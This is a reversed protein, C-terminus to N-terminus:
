KTNEEIAKNFVDELAYVCEEIAYQKAYEIYDKSCQNKEELNNYWYTIKEALSTEDGAKFLNKQSLAFQNTASLKSDSIVPVLGCTFAEICSIAEIEADSAHIYLDSYNIVDILEEQNYFGFIPSNTLHKSMHRLEKEWPGKGAFILQVDKEFSLQEVAKIILDQRKEKSYRGIMLIVFKDQLDKPKEVKINKFAPVVGNSIVHLSAKYDHMKLQNAIMNSPCHIHSFEDFFKKFYKYIYNNVGKSKGFGITYSINEPQVHFAATTPINRKDCMKKTVKSLRFPLLFHVVDAGDIASEIIKKDAKAFVMGQSACIQYVVPIKHIGTSFINEENSNKGCLVRVEHGHLRMYHAFRMATMTTGNNGDGYQDMVFTIIM